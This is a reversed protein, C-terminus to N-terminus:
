NTPLFYLNKWRTIDAAKGTQGDLYRITGNQNVVNFVHGSGTAKSEGYIIGAKGVGLKNLSLYSTKSFVSNYHKQLFGVSVPGDVYQGSENLAKPMASSKIGKLALDTSIVCNTCNFGGLKKGDIGRNVNSISGANKEIPTDEKNGEKIPKKKQINPKVVGVKMRSQAYKVGVAAHLYTDFREQDEARKEEAKQDDSKVATLREEVEEKTLGNYKNVNDYGHYPAYNLETDITYTGGKYHIQQVTLLTCVSGYDKSILDLKSKGTKEDFVIRYNCTEAGDLDINEIPCNGAFHYPSWFPFKAALPDVSFFKGIRPDYFRKEYDIGNGEGKL